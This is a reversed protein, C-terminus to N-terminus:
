PVVLFNCVLIGVSGIESGTMGLGVLHQKLILQSTVLHLDLMYWRSGIHVEYVLDSFFTRAASSTLEYKSFGQYM